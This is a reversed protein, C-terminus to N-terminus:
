DFVIQLGLKIKLIDYFSINKHRQIFCGTSTIVMIAAVLPIWSLNDHMYDKEQEPLMESLHKFIAVALHIISKVNKLIDRLQCFINSTAQALSAISGSVIFVMKKPAKMVLLPATLSAPLFFAGM